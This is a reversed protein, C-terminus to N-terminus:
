QTNPNGRITGAIHEVAELRRQQFAVLLDKTMGRFDAFEDHGGKAPTPLQGWASYAYELPVSSSFRSRRTYWESTGDIDIKGIYDFLRAKFLERYRHPTNWDFT